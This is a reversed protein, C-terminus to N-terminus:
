LVGVPLHRLLDPPDSPDRGFGLRMPKSAWLRELDKFGSLFLFKNEKRRKM